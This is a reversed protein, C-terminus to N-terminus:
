LVKLDAGDIGVAKNGDVQMICQIIVKDTVIDNPNMWCPNPNSWATTLNHGFHKQLDDIAAKVNVDM